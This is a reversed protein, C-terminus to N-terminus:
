PILPHSSVVLQRRQDHVAGGLPKVKFYSNAAVIAANAQTMSIQPIVTGAVTVRIIGKIFGEGNTNTTASDLATNAATNFTLQATSVTAGPRGQRDGAM